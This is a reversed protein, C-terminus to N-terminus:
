CRLLRKLTTDKLFLQMAKDKFTTNGWAQTAIAGVGAKAQPVVAGVAFIKVPRCCGV